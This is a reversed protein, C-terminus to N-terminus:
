ERGRGLIRSALSQKSENPISQLADLNHTQRTIDVWQNSKFGKYGMFGKALCGAFLTFANVPRKPFLSKGYLLNQSVALSTIKDPFYSREEDSELDIFKELAQQANPNGGKAITIVRWLDDMNKIELKKIELSDSVSM